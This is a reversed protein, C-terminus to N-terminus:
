SSNASTFRALNECVDHIDRAVFAIGGSACIQGIFSIQEDSVKGRPTKVEIALFRGDPM